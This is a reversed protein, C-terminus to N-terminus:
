GMPRSMMIKTLLEAGTADTDGDSAADMFAKALFNTAVGQRMVEGLLSVAPEIRLVGSRMASIWCRVTDAAADITEESKTAIRWGKRLGNLVEPDHSAQELLQQTAAQATNIDILSLFGRATALPADNEWGLVAHLASATDQPNRCLRHLARRASEHITDSPPGNLLWKLRILTGNPYDDAFPGACMEAVVEAEHTPATTSTRKGYNYAWTRTKDRVKMGLPTDGALETLLGAVLGCNEPWDNAWRTLTDILDFEPYKDVLTSLRKGVVPLRSEGEGGPGTIRRIWGLLAERLQPRQRWIHPLVAYSLGHRAVDLSVDDTVADTDMEAIRALKPELDDDLLLEEVTPESKRGGLLNMAAKWVVLPPAGDLVASAILLARDEASHKDKDDFFSSLHGGWARFEDAVRALVDNLKVEGDHVPPEPAHAIASALGAADRPRTSSTLLSSLIEQDLWGVRDRRHLRVLHETAVDHAVPPFIQVREDHVSQACRSWAEDTMTVVLRIGLHARDEVFSRLKVGFDEPFADTATEGLDLFYTRGSRAPLMGVDPKDWDKNLERVSEVDVGDLRTEPDVQGLLRLAVTRKGIRRQGTILILQHSKWVQVLHNWQQPAISAYCQRVAALESRLGCESLVKGLIQNVEINGGAQLVTSHPGTRVTMGPGAPELDKQPVPAHAYADSASGVPTFNDWGPVTM